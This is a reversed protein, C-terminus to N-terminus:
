LGAATEKALFAGIKHADAPTANDVGRLIQSRTCLNANYFTEIFREIRDTDATIHCLTRM